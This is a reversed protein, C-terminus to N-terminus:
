RCVSARSESAHLTYRLTFRRAFPLTARAGGRGAADLGAEEPGLARKLLPYETDIARGLPGAAAFASAAAGAAFCPRLLRAAPLERV